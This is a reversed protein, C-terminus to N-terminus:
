NSFWFRVVQTAQVSAADVPAANSHAEEEAPTPKDLVEAASGEPLAETDPTITLQPSLESSSPAVVETQTEVDYESVEEEEDLRSQNNNADRPPNGDYVQDRRRQLYADRLFAYPDLAAEEFVKEADLTDSRVSVVKLAITKNRTRIDHLQFLPDIQNDVALGIGDRINSPGLLPLVLYPGTNFGWYGLTQGFDEDHKPLGADSAIDILGFIGFTSNFIVRASDSVAQKLKFQLIDNVVTIVDELNSFFNSIGTRAPKPIVANYASAVPKVIAKDAADNFQYVGRNFPELPDNPNNTTACGGLVALALLAALIKPCLRSFHIKM